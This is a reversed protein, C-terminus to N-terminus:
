YGLLKLKERVVRRAESVRWKVTGVPVSLIAGIEDYSYEGSIALLLTDRLKRPLRNILSRTRRRMEAAAVVAHPGPAATAVADLPDPADESPAVLRRRWIQAARRRTLAKRWAIALLWTKFSAEGRFSDLRRFAAVFADQTAEEADAPSGLAALAARYVASQHLRVIEDFAASDGVRARAVLADIEPRNATGPRDANV